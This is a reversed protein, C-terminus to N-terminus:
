IVCQCETYSSGPNPLVQQCTGSDLGLTCAKGINDCFWGDESSCTGQKEGAYLAGTMIIGFLVVATINKKNM